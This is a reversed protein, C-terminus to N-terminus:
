CSRPQGCLQVAVDADSFGAFTIARTTVCFTRHDEIDSAERQDGVSGCVSFAFQSAFTAHTALQERGQEHRCLLLHLDGAQVEISDRTCVVREVEEKDWHVQLDGDNNVYAVSRMIGELRVINDFFSRSSNFFM